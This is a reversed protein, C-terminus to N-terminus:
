FFFFFFLLVPTKHAIKARIFYIGINQLFLLDIDKYGASLINKDM